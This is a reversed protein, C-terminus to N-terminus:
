RRCAMLVGGGRWRKVYKASMYLSNGIVSVRDGRLVIFSLPFCLPLSFM